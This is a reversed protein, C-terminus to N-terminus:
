VIPAADRGNVHWSGGLGVGVADVIKTLDDPGENAGGALLVSKQVVVAGERCDVRGV